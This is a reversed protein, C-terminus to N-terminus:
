SPKIAEVYLSEIKRYETDLLLRDDAGEMFCRRTVGTFGAGQLIRSLCDFDYAYQHGYDRFVRNVAMIPCYGAAYDADSVYPFLVREGATSRLYLKLYLEADPVVIRVRGAPKLMRYFERLVGKCQDFSIHELCHETFIGSVVGDALPFGRTIDWCLDIGPRWYYDLNIFDPNINPGCGVNLLSKGSHRLAGLQLNKNRVLRGILAQVKSYSWISRDFSFRAKSFDM